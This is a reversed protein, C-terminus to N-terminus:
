HQINALSVRAHPKKKKFFTIAWHALAEPDDRIFINILGQVSFPEHKNDVLVIFAPTHPTPRQLPQQSLTSYSAPRHFPHGGEARMWLDFWCLYLFCAKLRSSHKDRCFFYIFPLLPLPSPTHPANIKKKKKKLKKRYRFCSKSSWPFSAMM